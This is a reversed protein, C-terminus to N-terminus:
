GHCISKYQCGRCVFYFPSNNIKDPATISSAIRSAKMCLENYYNEDFAVHEDHLESTDKNIALVYAEKVGSMGMYAQVQAYYVPYWKQLGAKQFVRFSSDKATKVEIIAANYPFDRL